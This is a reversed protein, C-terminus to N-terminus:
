CLGELLGSCQGQKWLWQSSQQSSTWSMVTCSSPGATGQAGPSSCRLTSSHFDGFCGESPGATRELADVLRQSLQALWFSHLFLVVHFRKACPRQPSSACHPSFPSCSCPCGPCLPIATSCSCLCRCRQGPLCCPCCWLPVPPYPPLLWTQLPPVFKCGFMM